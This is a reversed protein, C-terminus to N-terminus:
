TAVSALECLVVGFGSERENYDCVLTQYRSMIKLDGYLTHIQRGLPGPM